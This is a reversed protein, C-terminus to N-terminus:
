PILGLERLGERPEDFSCSGFSTVALRRASEIEAATARKQGWKLGDSEFIFHGLTDDELISQLEDLQLEQVFNLVGAGFVNLFGHLPTKLQDDWNRIPRHLGATFKVPVRCKHCFSIAFGIDRATPIADQNAGGCRLKFGKRGKANVMLAGVLAPLSHSWGPEFPMEYYADLPAFGDKRLRANPNFVVSRLNKGDDYVLLEKPLRTEFTDVKARTEHSQQFQMIAKYDDVMGLGFETLDKGGKGLATIVLPPGDRFLEDVFPSLEHLREAPCVFRGLLWSEPETRYRAYNRIAQELPLQAPPFMGAYDVIGTFMARVSALM